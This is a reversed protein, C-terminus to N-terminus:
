ISFKGVIKGIKSNHFKESIIKFFRHM